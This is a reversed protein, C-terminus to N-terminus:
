KFAEIERTESQMGMKDAKVSNEMTITVMELHPNEINAAAYCKIGIDHCRKFFSLDESLPRKGNKQFTIDFPLEKLETLIRYIVNRRIMLCGGGAAGIEFIDGKTEFSSVLEFDTHEANWMYILPPYPYLKVQYIGALVDLKHKQFLNLMRACLDPDSEHDADTMFIWDGQMSQVLENRAKAHYSVKSRDYHIYTDGKTLYESNYLSMQLFSWSFRELIAPVGGLYAVTGLCRKQILM